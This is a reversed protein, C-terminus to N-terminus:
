KAGVLILSNPRIAKSFDSRMGPSNPGLTSSFEAKILNINFNLFYVFFYYSKPTMWLSPVPVFTQEAATLLYFSDYCYDLNTYFILTTTFSALCESFKTLNHM